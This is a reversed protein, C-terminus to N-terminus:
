CMVICSGSSDNQWNWYTMTDIGLEVISESLWNWCLQVVELMVTICLTLELVKDHWNWNTIEMDMHTDVNTAITKVNRNVYNQKIHVMMIMKEQWTQM